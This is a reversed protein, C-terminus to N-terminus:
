NRNTLPLSFTFTAGKEGNATNEAWMKGGHAEIISKSIFLGLGTGEYSRTAFKTFLRPLIEPNIGKGTDKIRVIVEQTQKNEVTISIAGEKTFKVSNSLLNSIVQTLRAKDAEIIVDKCKNEYILKVNLKEIHNTYDEIVDKIVRNLNVQEKSLQMRQTEIKTVDLVDSTLQRLRKANRIIIDLFVLEEKAKVGTRGKCDKQRKSYLVESFILIPQIPTRLEHAAINIFERQMKDHINLKEHTKKIDEYLETQVWLNEFISVYSLVGAKSNSYTSLGIAGVFTTKSDDRIEMVLSIKRDVALITAKTDSVQQIFRVDIYNPSLQKLHLVTQEDINNKPMLIRVKVNRDEAAEKFLQVVGMKEQRIIANISPFILLIETTANKVLNLYLNQAEASNKIVEIDALAVGEEIDRLREAADIGGKWLEEFISSFHKIYVPENSTLLSQVTKGDELKDITAHFYRNDVAFNMPPLNRVHRIQAGANLFIKILDINDKETITTIWRIGKNKGGEEKEGKKRGPTNLIKEYLDFFNNYILQMGGISCCVSREAANEIVYKLHNNIQQPNELVRTEYRTVIGEEIEKIRQEAQRGKSWLTDFVYQQQEVIEKVNSYIIQPAIKGKEFLILPALYEEESIMFNGKIGDLHHLEHVIKMLKKCYSLNSKTIETLYRLQVGRSKADLFAKKIPEIGIALPPRTYNMCTDIRKKSKSFFRLESNIVNQIGYFIKTGKISRSAALTNGTPLLTILNM